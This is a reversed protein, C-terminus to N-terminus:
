EPEYENLVRSMAMYGDNAIYGELSGYDISGCNRLAIKVQNKFFDVDEIYPVNRDLKRDFYTKDTKIRGRLLHSTVIAPMDHPTLKTYLVSKGPEIGDNKEEKEPVARRETDPGHLVTIIMVPGLDCTGICGTEIIHVDDTLGEKGLCDLLSDRVAHCNSSICGAGSCIVIKFRKGNMEKNYEDRIRLLDAQNKIRVNKVM